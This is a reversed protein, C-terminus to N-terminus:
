LLELLNESRSEFLGSASRDVIQVDSYIKKWNSINMNLQKVGSQASGGIARLDSGGAGSNFLSIINMLCTVQEATDLAAFKAEGAKMTKAQNSPLNSFPWNGMKETLLAYLEENEKRTIHDHKEDLVIAKNIKQKAVFRDLAKIYVEWKYGLMVANLPSVTIQRGTKGAITVLTGDLSLVTNVKLPRGGLLLELNDVSKGTIKEIESATIALADQASRRFKDAYLSSVPVVMVERKKKVTFRALVFFTATAKNYGGYKETPMGDKLPILKEGKPLPQQDFFGGKRCFAYRTLHVANKQVTKKVAAVDAGGNWYCQEGHSLRQIFIKKVQVNYQGDLTFWRKTFREHYVNGVVINLYADKAHHLDNVSRCKLLDFEQRFESVLGAKVPVIETDPYLQQLLDKVVKTSQRTEVLQRNIFGMREEATFPTARTLRRYKEEQMLGNEKLSHWFGAMKTRIDDPLPYSDSKMGNVESEVLVLNNLVSDDKVHCQPYIHEINYTGDALRTLDIPTGTYASKGLQLYYLFLRDSQLRNDAMAGMKDLEKQLQRSEETNIKKYLDLLQQKRSNTRKGKEDPKGGRAMEVFIKQPACGNVKVVDQIIDLTRYIPRKVANSIYMEDLLKNLSNSAGIREACIEKIQEAFTYKESLVQMLNDNTQWMADLVTFAEGTDSNTACGYLGNLLKGSLRGFEKLKQRLIYTVDDEALQPFTATLWRKMRTKDESYAAHRIIEEVDAETLAGSEMLRKFIHYSKLNSKVTSDLGSLEDGKVMYGHILLYEEIKKRTIRPYRAFLQTYLEQKVAVPISINNVRINNIENLVTFKSYLLSNVPLVDEDPLYTCRNTMRSIFGQESADFDVMQEFNWPLIKGEQRRVLWANNSGTSHLPGVFYPIKFDFIALIKDKVTIGDDDSKLLMPLYEQAHNLVEQLEYRYLQQPIVRNDTDKQKPLFTRAQLRMTMDQYAVADEEQATVAKLRKLLFDSFNDKTATSKVETREKESLAKVNRTYCVYNDKVASRFIDNYQEPIYKKVFYKLTKLDRQHQEYVAVKSDSICTCGKMSSVLKACDMLARLRYLLEVDDDLEAINQAFEEDDGTLSFAKQEAYGAETAFLDVPKVKGGALLTVIAARSFPFDEDAEKSIKEGNYLTQRFAEEKMRVGCDKQLISLIQQATIDLSWPLSYGEDAFYKCFNKYVEDFDLIESINDSAIDFLFHGRNAVLWACAIYVLCVDHAQTSNMLESILHHITPYQRHYEEDTIGDGAFLRVGFQTDEKYLRSEKRRIFFNEDVKGIEPAFLEELLHVRQQRRDLRRRATRFARRDAAVQAEEFLHAGWMPEGRYKMLTYDTATVAYGVSNTGIDLGLYYQKKM